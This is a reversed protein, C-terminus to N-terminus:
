IKVLVGVEVFHDDDKCPLMYVVTAGLPYYKNFAESLEKLLFDKNTYPFRSNGPLSFTFNLFEDRSRGELTSQLQRSFHKTFVGKEENGWFM